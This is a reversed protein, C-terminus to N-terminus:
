FFKQLFECSQGPDCTQSGQLPVTWDAAASMNIPPVSDLDSRRDFRRAAETEKWFSLLIIAMLWLTFTPAVM